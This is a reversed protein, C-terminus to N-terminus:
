SAHRHGPIECLSPPCPCWGEETTNCMCHPYNRVKDEAWLRVYEDGKDTLEFHDDVKKAFGVMVMMALTDERVEIDVFSEEKSM